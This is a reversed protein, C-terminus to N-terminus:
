LLQKLLQHLFEFSFVRSLFLMKIIFSMIFITWARSTEAIKNFPTLLVILFSLFSYFPPIKFMNNRAKILFLFQLFQTQFYFCLLLQLLQNHFLIPNKIDHWGKVLKSICYLLTILIFWSKITNIRSVIQRFCYIIPSIYYVKIFICIKTRM